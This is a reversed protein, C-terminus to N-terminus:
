HDIRFIDMGELTTEKEYHAKVYKRVSQWAHLFSARRTPCQSLIDGNALGPEDTDWGSVLV